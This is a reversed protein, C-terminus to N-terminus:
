SQSVCQCGVLSRVHAGKISVANLAGVMSPSILMSPMFTFLDKLWEIVAQEIIFETFIM